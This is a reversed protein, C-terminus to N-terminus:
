ISPNKEVQTEKDQDAICSMLKEFEPPIEFPKKVYRRAYFWTRWSHLRSLRLILREFEPNALEILQAEIRSWIAASNEDMSAISGIQSIYPNLLDKSRLQFALLPDASAITDVCKEYGESLNQLDPLINELFSKSSLREQPSLKFRETVEDSIRKVGLLRHRIEMLNALARGIARRDERRLRLM